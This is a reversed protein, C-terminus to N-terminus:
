KKTCINKHDDIHRQHVIHIHTCTRASYIQYRKIVNRKRNPLHLQVTNQSISNQKHRKTNKVIQSEFSTKFLRKCYRHQHTKSNFNHLQKYASSTIYVIENEVRETSQESKQKIKYAICNVSFNFFLIYNYFYFCCM